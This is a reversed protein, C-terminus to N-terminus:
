SQEGSEVGDWRVGPELPGVRSPSPWPPSVSETCVDWGFWTKEHLKVCLGCRELPLGTQERPIGRPEDFAFNHLPSYLLIILLSLPILPMPLQCRSMLLSVILGRGLAQGRPGAVPDTDRM